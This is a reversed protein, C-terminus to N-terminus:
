LKTYGTPNDVYRAMKAKSVSKKIPMNEQSNIGSALSMKSHLSAEIRAAIEDSQTIPKAINAALYWSLLLKFESSFLNVNKVNRIFRIPITDGYEGSTLIWRKGNSDSEVSYDNKKDEVSGIGLLKLCDSPYEYYNSWGFEPATDSKASLRRTLSFNPIVLQLLTERSIDYWLACIKEEASSPTDISMVTELSGLHGLALNCINTDSHIAM